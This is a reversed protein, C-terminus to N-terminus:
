SSRRRRVSSGESVPEVEDDGGATAHHVPEDGADILAEVAIEELKLAAQYERRHCEGARLGTMDAAKGFAGEEAATLRALMAETAPKADYIKLYRTADAFCTAKLLGPRDYDDALRRLRAFQQPSPTALEQARDIWTMADRKTEPKDRDFSADADAPILDVLTRWFREQGPTILEDM